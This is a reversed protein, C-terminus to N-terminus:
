YSCVGRITAVVFLRVLPQEKGGSEWLVFGHVWDVNMLNLDACLELIGVVYCVCVCLM